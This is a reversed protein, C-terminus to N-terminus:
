KVALLPGNTTTVIVDPAMSILERALTSYRAPDAAAGHIELRINDGEIWGMEALTSKFGAMNRLSSPTSADGASLVAILRQRSAPQAATSFPVAAAAAVAAMFRRRRM